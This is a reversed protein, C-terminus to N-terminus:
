SPIAKIYAARTSWYQKAKYADVASAPVYIACDSPVSTFTTSSINPPTLRRCIITRLSTCYAFSNGSLQSVSDPIEVSALNTCYYFTYTEVKNINPLKVATLGSCSNFANSGISTITTPFEISTLASCNQFANADIKTLGNPLAISTMNTMAYFAYMRITTVNNPVTISTATGDILAKLQEDGGGGSVNVTVPSYGDVGSPATYTGNQTVTLAEITAGGGSGGSPINSIAAAMEAPTYTENSGNKARIADAIDTLYSETIIAESM